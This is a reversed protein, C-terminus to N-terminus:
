NNEKFFIRRFRIWDNNKILPSILNKEKPISINFNREIMKIIKLGVEFAFDRPDSSGIPDWHGKIQGKENRIPYQNSITEPMPYRCEHYASELIEIINGGTYQLYQKSLIERNLVNNHILKKIMRKLEHGEQKALSNIKEKAKQEPLSEYESAKSALIYSKCIKELGQHYFFPADWLFVDDILFYGIYFDKIGRRVWSLVVKEKEM